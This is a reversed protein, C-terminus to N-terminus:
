RNRLEELRAAANRNRPELALSREYHRIALPLHRM